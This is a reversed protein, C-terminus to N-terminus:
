RSLEEAIDALQSAVRSLREHEATPLAHTDIAKLASLAFRVGYSADDLQQAHAPRHHHHPGHLAELAAWSMRGPIDTM